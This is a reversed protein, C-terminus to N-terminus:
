PQTDRGRITTRPTRRRRLRGGRNRARRRGNAVQGGHRSRTAPSRATARADNRPAARELRRTTRMRRLQSRRQAARMPMRADSGRRRARARLAPHRQRHDRREHEGNGAHEEVARRCRRPAPPAARPEIVDLAELERGSGVCAGRGRLAPRSHAAVGAPRDLERCLSGTSCSSSSPTRRQERSSPM